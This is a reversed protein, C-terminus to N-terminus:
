LRVYIPLAPMVYVSRRLLHPIIRNWGSVSDQCFGVAETPNAIVSSFPRGLQSSDLKEIVAREPQSQPGSRSTKRFVSRLLSWLAGPMLGQIISEIM